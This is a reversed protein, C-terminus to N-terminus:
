ASSETIIVYSNEKKKKHNRKPYSRTSPLPNNQEESRLTFITNCSYEKLGTSYLYQHPLVKFLLLMAAIVVEYDHKTPENLSVNHM